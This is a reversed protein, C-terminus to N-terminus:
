QACVPYEKRIVYEYMMIASLEIFLTYAGLLYINKLMSIGFALSFALGLLVMAINFISRNNDRILLELVNLSNLAAAAPVLSMIRLLTEATANPEGALVYIIPGAFIMMGASIVLFALTLMKKIKNKFGVFQLPDDSFLWAAKPYVSNAISSIM